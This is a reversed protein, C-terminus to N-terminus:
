KKVLINTLLVYIYLMYFSLLLKVDKIIKCINKIKLINTLFAFINLM